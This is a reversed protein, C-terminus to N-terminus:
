EEQHLGTRSMSVIGLVATPIRLDPQRLAFLATMTDVQRAINLAFRRGQFSLGSSFVSTQPGPFTKNYHPTLLGSAHFGRIDNDFALVKFFFFQGQVIVDILVAVNIM